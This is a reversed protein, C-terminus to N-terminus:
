KKVGKYVVVSAIVGGIVLLPNEEVFHIIQDILGVSPESGEYEIIVRATIKFDITLASVFNKSVLFNFTNSGSVLKGIIDVSESKPSVDFLAWYFSQIKDSNLDVWSLVDSASPAVTIDLVASVITTSKEDWTISRTVDFGNRGWNWPITIVKDVLLDYSKKM